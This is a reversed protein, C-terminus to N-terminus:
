EIVSDSVAEKSIPHDITLSYSHLAIDRARFSQSAGYKVDGVIPHGIHSLQARIQHKRGTELEVDLLTQYVKSKPGDMIYHGLVHYALKAEVLNKSSKAQANTDTGINYVRVRENAVGSKSILHHCSGDDSIRGNVVCLYKKDVNRSRFNENIRSASKSNKAFVLVGSSPRDLRHIMSLFVNNKEDRQGIYLKIDDLLNDSKDMDSQTLIGTPKNVVIICKDEYIIANDLYQLRKSSLTRHFHCTYCFLIHDRGLYFSNRLYRLMKIDM